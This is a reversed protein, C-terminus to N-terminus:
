INRNMPTHTRWEREFEDKSIEYPLLWAENDGEVVITSLGGYEDLDHDSDYSLVNGNPYTALEREVYRADNIEWWYTAEGGWDHNGEDNFKFYRM